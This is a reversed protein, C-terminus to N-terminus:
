FTSAEQYLEQLTHDLSMALLTYEQLHNPLGSSYLNNLQEAQQALTRGYSVLPEERGLFMDQKIELLQAIGQMLMWHCEEAERLLEPSPREILEALAPGM